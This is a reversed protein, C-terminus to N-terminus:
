DGFDSGWSKIEIKLDKTMEAISDWKKKLVRDHIFGKEDEKISLPVYQDNHHSITIEYSNDSSSTFFMKSLIKYTM